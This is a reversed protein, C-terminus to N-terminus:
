ALADHLVSSSYKKRPLNKGLRPLLQINYKFYIGMNNNRTRMLNQIVKFLKKLDDM